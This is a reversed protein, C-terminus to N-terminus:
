GEPRRGQGLQLTTDNRRWTERTLNGCILSILQFRHGHRHHHHCERSAGPPTDDLALGISLDLGALTSHEEERRVGRHHHAACIGSGRRPVTYDRYDSALKSELLSLAGLRSWLPSPTQGSRSPEPTELLANNVKSVAATGVCLSPVFSAKTVRPQVRGKTEPRIECECTMNTEDWGDQEMEDWTHEPEVPSPM